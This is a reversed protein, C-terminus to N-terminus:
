SLLASVLGGSTSRQRLDTDTAYSLNAQEFHGHLARIDPTEGFLQRATALADFEDGPCVKVCLDCDTCSSLNTVVPYEDADVGLVNTPCIGVCSGCRHCLDNDIIQALTRLARPPESQTSDKWRLPTVLPGDHKLPIQGM